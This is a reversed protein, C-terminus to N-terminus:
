IMCFFFFKNRVWKIIRKKCGKICYSQSFRDVDPFSTSCRRTRRRLLPQDVAHRPGTSRLACPAHLNRAKTGREKEIESKTWGNEMHSSTTFQVSSRGVKKELFFFHRGWVGGAPWTHPWVKARSHYSSSNGPSLINPCDWYLSWKYLKLRLYEM